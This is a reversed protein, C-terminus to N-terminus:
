ILLHSYSFAYRLPATYGNPNTNLHINTHADPHSASNFNTYQNTPLHCDTYINPIQDLQANGDLHQHFNSDIDLHFDRDPHQNAHRYSHIDPFPHPTETPSIHVPAIQVLILGLCYCPITALIVVAVTLRTRNRKSVNM